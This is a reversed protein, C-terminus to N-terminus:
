IVRGLGDQILDAEEKLWALIRGRKNDEQANPGQGGGNRRISPKLKLCIWAIANVGEHQRM